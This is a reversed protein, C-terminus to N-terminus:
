NCGWELKDKYKEIFEEQNPVSLIHRSIMFWNKNKIEDELVFEKYDDTFYCDMNEMENIESIEENPLEENM